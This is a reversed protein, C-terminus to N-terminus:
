RCREPDLEMLVWFGLRGVDVPPDRRDTPRVRGNVGGELEYAVVRRYCSDIVAELPALRTRFVETPEREHSSQPAWVVAAPRARRLEAAAQEFQTQSNEGTTLVDFSTPNRRGSLFYLEPWYPGVWVAGGPPVRQQLFGLIIRLGEAEAPTEAVVLGAPTALAAQGPQFWGRLAAANSAPSTLPLIVIALALATCAAVAPQLSPRAQRYLRGAWYVLLPAALPFAYIVHYRDLHYLAGLFIGAAGLSLLLLRRRMPQARLASRLSLAVMVAVLLVILLTGTAEVTKRLTSGQAPLLYLRATSIGAYRAFLWVVTDEIFQPFAGVLAFGAVAIVLLAFAAGGLVALVPIRRRGSTVAIVFLALALTLLPAASQLSLGTLACMAGSVILWLWGRRPLWRALAAVAAVSTFTAVWHHDLVPWSPLGIAVWLLCCLAALESRLVLKSLGYLLAVMLVFIATLTWGLALMNSGFLSLAGASVYLAGPAIFEWFDRYPVEGLLVRQGGQPVIGFDGLERELLLDSFLLGWAFQVLVM